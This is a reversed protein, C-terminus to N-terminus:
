RALVDVTSGELGYVYGPTVALVNSFWSTSLVVLEGYNPGATAMNLEGFPQDPHSIERYFVHDSSGTLEDISIYQSSNTVAVTFVSAGSPISAIRYLTTHSTVLGATYAFLTDGLYALEVSTCDYSVPQSPGPIGTTEVRGDQWAARNDRRGPGLRAINDRGLGTRHEHDRARVAM